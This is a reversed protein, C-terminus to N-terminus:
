GRLVGCLRKVAGSAVADGARIVAEGLPIGTVALALGANLVVADHVPGRVGDFVETLITANEAPEGGLLDDPRCRDFGLDRPDVQEVGRATWLRFPGVPTAEDWGPEGHVVWAQRGRLAGALREAVVPDSAGVLQFAPRAPNTLPGVLNFATRVALDRRARSVALAAPHFAPALLFVFGFRALRQEAVFPYTALPIGLADLVDASGCRSSVARNGHKCVPVGCAAAVLAAATSLNVSGSGDGGTGCTDLAGLSRVTVARDLMADALTRLEDATEGKARLAVLVGAKRSDPVEPDLLVGVLAHVEAVNLAAGTLLRNIM